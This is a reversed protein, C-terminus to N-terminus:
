QTSKPRYSCSVSLKRPSFNTPSNSVAWDVDLNNKITEVLEKAIHKLVDDGMVNQATGHSTLADYFAIEDDSLGLDVGRQNSENIEKAIKILDEIIKATENARNKYNTLANDLLESFVRESVKNKRMKTKIQGKILRELLEIALNKQKLNKIGLLFDDSLVSIDPKALGAASFIDVVGESSVSKSILQRIAYEKEDLKLRKTPDTKNLAGNINQFLILEDRVILSSEHPTALAFAKSFQYVADSFRKKGEPQALIHELLFPMQQLLEIGKGIYKKYEIGHLIQVCLEYKELMIAVAENKDLYPKGRGGSETYTSMTKRLSDAIGIYDVVLGGKKNKFVRNVRAIAQMLGHDKMPKDIYMTHMCPVDFGTLWMDRVIVIKVPSKEDKFIHALEERRKKTRIHQQWEEKDSASGTIVVKITGLTDEDSHWAPRLQIIEHYLDICIRRSMGVIMAKGDTADLRNEFHTVFDLAVQKIRSETGTLAELNAWRSKLREKESSEEYETLEDMAADLDVKEDRALNILRSEYYIPVTAQDQISREIDYVSIYDGFIARTDADVKAIPTGTFGIFSANPLADRMHRAFGDLFDYQSRHAEDAVVIINKRDSLLPYTDGKAEPLFKQITTFYIGGAAVNLKERLDKRNEIQTPNQRLLNTFQNVRVFQGFLQDDLDNRDTLVVLTPNQLESQRAAKGAYFAMSFSKGSGTSHWVTGIRKDSHIARITEQMAKRVANFQHYAAIIKVLKNESEVKKEYVIFSSIFDIFREQQFLGKILVELSLMGKPADLESDTTRWVQFREKDSTLSGVRTNSGDSLIIVENFYFLSPIDKKYTQIQNYAQWIDTQADVPNKLEFVALPLGNIFVVIDPRRNVKNEIIKFQNVVHFDNNHPNNYDILFVKKSETGQATQYQVDVGETIFNHCKINQPILGVVDCLMVQRLAEDLGEQPIDPNIEQIKRKLRDILICQAYDHREEYLGEPAIDPGFSSTYGMEEFWIKAQQELIDENLTKM